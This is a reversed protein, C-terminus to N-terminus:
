KEIVENNQELTLKTLLLLNEIYSEALYNIRLSPITDHIVETKTYSKYSYNTSVVNLFVKKIGATRVLQRLNYKPRRIERKDELNNQVIKDNAKKSAQVPAM